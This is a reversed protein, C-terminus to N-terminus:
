RRGPKARRAARKAEREAAMATARLLVDHELLAGHTVRYDMGNFKACRGTVYFNAVAEADVGPATLSEVFRLWAQHQRELVVRVGARIATEDTQSIKRSPFQSM